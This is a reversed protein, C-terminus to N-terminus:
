PMLRRATSRLQGRIRRARDPALLLLARDLGRGAFAAARQQPTLKPRPRPVLSPRTKAGWLLVLPRHGQVLLRSGIPQASRDTGSELRMQWIGNTLSRRPARAVLRRGSGGDVLTADARVSRRDHSLVLTGSAAEVAPEGLVIEVDADRRRVFSAVLDVAAPPPQSKGM